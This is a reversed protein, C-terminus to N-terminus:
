SHLWCAMIYHCFLHWNCCQNLLLKVFICFWQLDTNVTYIMCMIPGLAMDLASNSHGIHCPVRQWIRQLDMLWLLNIYLLLLWYAIQSCDFQYKIGLVHCRQFSSVSFIPRNRVYFCLFVFSVFSVIGLETKAHFWSSLLSRYGLHTYITLCWDTGNGNCVISVTCLLVHLVKFDLFLGPHWKVHRICCPTFCLEYLNVCQPPLILLVGIRSSSKAASIVICVNCLEISM